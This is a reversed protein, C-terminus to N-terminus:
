DTRKSWCAHTEDYEWCLAKLARLDGPSVIGELVVYIVDCGASASVGRYASLIQMGKSIRDFPTV